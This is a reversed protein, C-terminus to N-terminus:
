ISVTVAYECGSNINAVGVCMQFYDGVKALNYTSQLACSYVYISEGPSSLPLTNTLFGNSSPTLTLATQLLSYATAITLPSVSSAIQQVLYGVSLLKSM